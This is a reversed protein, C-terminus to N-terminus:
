SCGCGKTNLECKRLELEKKIRPLINTTKVIEQAKERTKDEEAFGIAKAPCLNSCTQCGVLCNNPNVVEPKNEKFDFKYVGRGCTTVCLGCGICKNKDVEPNWKIKEREIGHWESFKKDKQEM